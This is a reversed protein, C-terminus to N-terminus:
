AALEPSRGRLVRLNPFHGCSSLFGSYKKAEYWPDICYVPGTCGALLAYASRGYLCGVEVISAMAAATANLWTLDVPHMWGHIHMGPAPHGPVPEPVLLTM